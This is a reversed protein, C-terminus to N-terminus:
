IHEEGVSTFDIGGAAKYINIVTLLCDAKSSIENKKLALCTKSTKLYELLSNAGIDYKKLSLNRIDEEFSLNELSKEYNKRSIKASLLSDNLEQFSTLVAKQYYQLNKEYELKRYKLVSTKYGGTFIDLDPLIGVSSLFSKPTFIRNLEYANFGVRGYITFNPLFDKKAIKVENRAKEIYKKSKKIDPRFEILSSPLADPIEFLNFDDKHKFDKDGEGILVRLRNELVDKKEFLNNLESEYLTLLQKEAIVETLPCLGANFKKEEMSVIRNQLNILEKQIEILKDAKILNFYDSAIASTLSIYLSKEDEEMIARRVKLNKTKLRNKGWIDFEYSMTLPLFFNSQNYDPIILNGHHIDSSEFIRSYGGNFNIKPLEDSFSMKVAQEAQKINLEAVKLDQNNEYASLLYDTLIEDNFKEWWKLNLYEIKDESSNKAFGPMSLFMIIWLTALIKKM